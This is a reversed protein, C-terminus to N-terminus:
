LTKMFADVDVITGSHRAQEAAFVLIHNHCSEEITPISDSKEQGTLYDYLCNVIGLDGGGHGKTPSKSGEGM